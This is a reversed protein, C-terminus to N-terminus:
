NLTMNNILVRNEWFNIKGGLNLIKIPKKLQNIKKLFFNFRRNRFCNGLSKKIDSSNFLNQIRM